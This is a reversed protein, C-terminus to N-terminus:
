GTPVAAKPILDFAISIRQTPSDFPITRHYFYSPFLFLKGEVPQFMRVVPQSTSKPYYQQLGFEIWGTHDTSTANVVDPLQPYYVGSLWGDRHIHSAQHGGADLVVGWINIEWEDPRQGLFPHGPSIPRAERYADVCSEIQGMLDAIPGDGDDAMNGTQSGLETTNDKPSYVLSMHNQCSKSLKRNFASIDTYGYPVSIEFGQLLGDIDVLKSWEEDRRLEMLAVSKLALAGSYGPQLALERDAADLAEEWHGESLLARSLNNWTGPLGSSMSLGHKYADVAESCQQNEQYANGLCVFSRADNPTLKCLESFARVADSYQGMKQALNGLNNWAETFNPEVQVAREFLELARAPDGSQHTTVALYNLIQPHDPVKEILQELVGKAASADGAEFFEVASDFLRHLDDESPPKSPSM